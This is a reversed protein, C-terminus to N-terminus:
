ALVEYTNNLIDEYSTIYYDALKKIEDIQDASSADAVACVKMGADRGALIGMPVDEFVLCNAPDVQFEKAVSLYIDPAPKGKAVDCSTRICDFYERVSNSSLCVGILEHSNSSAIGIKINRERLLNLFAGAGRKLPVEHAYKEYAMENWERKIEEITMPLHFRKKFYEATETFGMGEISKQLDAPLEYGYKGLYEIDIDTWMWMSDMLTGDLDFIVAKIQELM